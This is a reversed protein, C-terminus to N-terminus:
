LFDNLHLFEEDNNYAGLFGFETNTRLVLDGMLVHIGPEM